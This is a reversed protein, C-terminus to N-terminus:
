HMEMEEFVVGKYTSSIEYEERMYTSEFMDHNFTGAWHCVGAETARGRLHHSCSCVIHRMCNYCGEPSLLSNEIRLSHVGPIGPTM